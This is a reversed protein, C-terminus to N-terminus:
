DTSVEHYAHLQRRDRMDFLQERTFPGMVRGRDRVFYQRSM